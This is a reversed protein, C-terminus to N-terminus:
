SYWKNVHKMLKFYFLNGVQWPKRPIFFNIVFIAFFLALIIFNDIFHGKSHKKIGKSGSNTDRVVDTWVEVHHSCGTIGQQLEIM